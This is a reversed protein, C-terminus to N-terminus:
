PLLRFRGALMMIGALMLVIQMAVVAVMARWLRLAGRRREGITRPGANKRLGAADLWGDLDAARQDGARQDEALLEFFLVDMKVRVAFYVVACWILMSCCEIWAVSGGNGISLVSIVAATHGALAVSSGSRLVAATARSDFAASLEAPMIPMRESRPGGEPGSSWVSSSSRDSWWRHGPAGCRISRM